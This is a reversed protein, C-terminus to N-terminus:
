SGGAGTSSTCPLSKRQQFYSPGSAAIKGGGVCEMVDLECDSVSLQKYIVAYQGPTVALEPGVNFIVQYHTFNLNEHVLVGKSDYSIKKIICPQRQQRYRSKCYFIDNEVLNELYYQSSIFNFESKEILLYDFYLAAHDSGAAVFVDGHSLSLAPFLQKYM